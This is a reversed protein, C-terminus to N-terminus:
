GDVLAALIRRAAECTSGQDLAAGAWAATENVSPLFPESRAFGARDRDARAHVTAFFRDAGVLGTVLFEHAEPFHDSQVLELLKAARWASSLGLLYASGSQAARSDSWGLRRGCGCPCQSAM